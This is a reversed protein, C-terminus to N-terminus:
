ENIIHYNKDRKIPYNEYITNIFSEGYINLYYILNFRREQWQNFPKLELYIQNILDLATKQKEKASKRQKGLTEKFLQYLKKETWSTSLGKEEICNITQNKIQYLDNWLKKKNFQETKILWNNTFEDQSQIIFQNFQFPQFQNLQHIKNKLEKTQIFFSNRPIIKAPKVLHKKYQDHLKKLYNQEGEGAIYYQNDYKKKSAFFSDQCISRTKVNPVLRLKKINEIKQYRNYFGDKKRYIPLRKNQNDIYFVNCQTNIESSELELQLIKNSFNQFEFNIPDFLNISYQGFLWSALDISADALTKDLQYISLTKKKLYETYQTKKISDFFLKIIDILSQDIIISGIRLGNSKKEWSLRKLKGQNDIFDIHRIENFDADNTELWYTSDGNLLQSHKIAGIVKYTTYLYGGLLSIQQGTIFHNM